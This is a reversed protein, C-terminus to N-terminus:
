QIVFYRENNVEFWFAEFILPYSSTPGLYDIVTGNCQIDGVTGGSYLLQGGGVPYLHFKNLQWTTTNGLVNLIPSNHLQNSVAGSAQYITWYPIPPTQLGSNYYGNYTVAAGPSVYPNNTGNVSPYCGNLSGTSGVLNNSLNHVTYNFINIKGQGLLVGATLICFVYILNKM